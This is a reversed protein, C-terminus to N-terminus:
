QLKQHLGTQSCIDMYDREQQSHRENQELKEQMRGLFMFVEPDQEKIRMYDIVKKLARLAECSTIPKTYQQTSYFLFAQGSEHPNECIHTPSVHNRTIEAMM